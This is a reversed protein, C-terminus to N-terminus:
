GKLIGKEKLYTELHARSKFSGGKAMRYLKRYDTHNLIGQKRLERLRSRVPRVTRIWRAKRPSRAHAAGRRSGHGRYRGKKRKAAKARARGRSVGKKQKITVTGEKILRQVDARTLATSVDESKTPDIWVRDAGVGMYRAAMRKKKDLKM